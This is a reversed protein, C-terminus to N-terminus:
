WWRSPRLTPSRPWARTSRVAGLRGSSRLWMCAASRRVRASRTPRMGSRAASSVEGYSPTVVSGLRALVAPDDYIPARATAATRLVGGGSVIAFLTEDGRPVNHELAVRFLRDVSSRALARGTDPDVGDSALARFEELEQALREDTREDLRANLVTHTVFGSVVMALAVVLLM